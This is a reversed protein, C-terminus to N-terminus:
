ITQAFLIFGKFNSINILYFLLAVKVFFYVFYIAIFAKSDQMKKFKLWISKMLNKNQKEITLDLENNERAALTDIESPYISKNKLNSDIEQALIIVPKSISVDPKVKISKLSEVRSDSKSKRIEEKKSTQNEEM